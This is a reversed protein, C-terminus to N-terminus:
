YINDCLLKDLTFIYRHETRDSRYLNQQEKKEEQKEYSDDVDIACLDNVCITFLSSCVQTTARTQNKRRETHTPTIYTIHACVSYRM